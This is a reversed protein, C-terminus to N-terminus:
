LGSALIESQNAMININGHWVWATDGGANKLELCGTLSLTGFQNLLSEVESATLLLEVGSPGPNAITAEQVTSQVTLPGMAPSITIQPTVSFGTCDFVGGTMPVRPTLQFHNDALLSVALGSADPIVEKNTAM